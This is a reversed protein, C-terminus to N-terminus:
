LLLMVHLEMKVAQEIEREKGNTGLLSAAEQHKQLKILISEVMGGYCIEVTKTVIEMATSLYLFVSSYHLFYWHSVMILDCLRRQWNSFIRNSVFLICKLM